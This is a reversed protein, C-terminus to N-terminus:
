LSIRATSRVEVLGVLAETAPTAIGNRRGGRMIPGAIADLELPRGADFDKQMSTQMDGGDFDLRRRLTEPDLQAGEALGVAVAERHCQGLRLNWEADAQVAGVPAGLATTTLALPALFALKEWLLTPEDVALEVDLGGARVDEAIEERRPGPALAVFKGRKHLVLGPEVRASEVWMAAALVREYRESPLAVHDVGNLM